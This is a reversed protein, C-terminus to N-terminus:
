DEIEPLEFQVEAKKHGTFQDALKDVADHLSEVIAKAQTPHHKYRAPNGLLRIANLARKTRATGIRRFAEQSSENEPIAVATKAM